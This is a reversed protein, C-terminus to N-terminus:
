EGAKEAAEYGALFDDQSTTVEGTEADVTTAAAQQEAQAKLTTVRRRYAEVAANIEVDIVLKEGLAKAEALSERDHAAEIAKLVQDLTVAPPQPAAPKKGAGLRSKLADTKTAPKQPQEVVEANGMDRESIQEREDLEDPTYVGLIVDPCYLRSWRKVALYALQQRPDDAWLTSNRTRAQTMLLTLERPESEDKFTAWVRVGLGDEDEIKWGPVRYKVPYGNDDKKSKSEREVFKGLIKEWPGFWEYQIRGMVPARATIVANVLQAEYGLTGNVLHTKQAVAFPNMGWQMSQLCIAFCDGPSGQLHKPLTTRGSAMLNAVRELRNMTADDLLMAAATSTAVVPLDDHSHMDPVVALPATRTNM